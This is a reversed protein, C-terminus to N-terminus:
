VTPTADPPASRVEIARGPCIAVCAGCGVCREVDFEPASEFLGGTIEVAEYACSAVCRNCERGQTLVCADLNVVATGIFLRKKDDV